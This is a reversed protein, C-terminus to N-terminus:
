PETRGASAEAAKGAVAPSPHVYIPERIGTPGRFNRLRGLTAASIEQGKAALLRGSRTAANEALVMGLCLESVAVARIEPAPSAGCKLEGFEELLLPDYWGDRLTMTDVAEEATLGTELLSDFDGVIKLLRAGKPISDGAIRDEPVGSGDFHKEQYVLIRQVPELRPINDLLEEAAAPIRRVMEREERSLSRHRYLKEVTSPPLIIWGIPSLLAAIEVAWADGRDLRESFDAVHRRLRTARGYAEPQVLALMDTLMKISGTLTQELLVRESTVLRYQRVGAEVIDVIQERSSPKRVFRFIMGRNIASVTADMDAQGTLLVRVTDPELRRAEELFELGDMGPMRLDSIVVAFPGKERIAKLGEEGGSAIHIDYFSRLNRQLGEVVKKEDDM